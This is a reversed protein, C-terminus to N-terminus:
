AWDSIHDDSKDSENPEEPEARNKENQRNQKRSHKRSEQRSEAHIVCTDSMEAEGAVESASEMLEKRVLEAERRAATKEASRLADLAAYPNPQTAHIHMHGARRTQSNARSFFIPRDQKLGKCLSPWDFRRTEDKFFM